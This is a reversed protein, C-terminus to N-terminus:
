LECNFYQCYLEFSGPSISKTGSLYAESDEVIGLYFPSRIESHLYQVSCVYSM